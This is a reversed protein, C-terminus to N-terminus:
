TALEITAPLGPGTEPSVQRVVATLATGAPVATPLWLFAPATTTARTALMGSGDRIEIDYLEAPADLPIDAGEWSDSGTRGCRIWGFRISGDALREARLHVPALMLTARRGGSSAVFAAAGGQGAFRWTLELGREATALGAPKVADDLLVFRSGAPAGARNADRTGALGRLLGTLRWEGAATEEATEFQVIEFAGDASQIAAVNAGNLLQVRNVSSLEGGPIRVAIASGRDFVGEPGPPLATLLRGITGPTDIVARESFNEGDASVALNVPRWPRSWAAAHLSGQGGTLSDHAPLDLLVAAPPGAAEPLRLGQGQGRDPTAAALPGENVRHATMRRLLGDDVETVLYAAQPEDTFVFREGPSPSRRDPPLSFAITERGTRQRVVMDAALARATPPDLAAALAFTEIRRGNGAAARALAAQYAREPDRFGVDIEDPLDRDPLRTREIAADDRDLVLDAPDVIRRPANRATGFTMTGGADHATLGFLTALPEVADRATALHDVVYGALFGDAQGTEAPPLGWDALIANIIDGTSAGSLRGNLWHGTAHNGADSWRDRLGPFAPYPRADWAWLSITGPDVMRGGYVPSVPNAAPDFRPDAPDFRAMHAALFRMQALDSRGGQSGHPLAHESSKRDPFVNPQRPGADVAPCGLETFWIPKAMAAWPSPTGTEIGGVRDVHPNSWWSVLDKTRFVWPKGHAGDTIPTRVRGTRDNDSAYFWDFYEGAGIAERMAVLDCPGNAGDPNGAIADADRWDSLPMYNDIGVADIDPHMWLPDLNFFLDGSGDEPHYGAYESWDAAYTIQTDPGLMARADAALEGLAEVFPFANNEDRVRTLGRMESGIIFGDVGGAARALACHHLIFRRYGFDDAAGSFGPLEGVTGFDAVAAAGAFATVAARAAATRDPTGPLGPAPALGLRGRWPWAPQGTGGLPDPLSNGPPIDMQMLPYLTVKLGRRRLEGIAAIVSADSPTGGFAPAGDHRSVTGAAARAIGSVMWPQSFGSTDNDMVLPRVRCHGARLDDGFWSTAIAVRDLNPCLAQLEDLSACLNSPAHHVDRNLTEIEGEDIERTIVTPSLGYETAGPILVVSRIQRNLRSVPRLVEFQLQPIRNGFRDLPLREFVVYAVGRYAPANGQGQRAEVLPDPMQDEAGTHVRMEIGNLDLEQGDAWVRRVGGIVGECLAFAVNGSYDYNILKPGGKIGLRRSTRREEFRTAWIMTGSVRMAGYVRAIAGGEEAQVPPISSLRPGEITRTSEIVARDIMYGALAGAAAGITAGVPGFMSGIAAGASQLIVTSM